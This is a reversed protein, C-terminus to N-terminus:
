QEGGKLLEPNEHINGIVDFDFSPSSRKMDGFLCALWMDYSGQITTILFGGEDFVIPSIYEKLLEGRIEELTFMDFRDPEDSFEKMLLNEYERVKIVDGEYIEKGNKDTLGTFQGITDPKVLEGKNGGQEFIYVDNKHHRIDGFLWKNSTIHQARFKITRM